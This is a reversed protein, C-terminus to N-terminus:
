LAAGREGRAGEWPSDSGGDLVHNRTGMWIGLGFPMKIPAATKAPYVLTVSLGVSWAVCNTVIPRM